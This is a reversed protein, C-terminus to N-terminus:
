YAGEVEEFNPAYFHRSYQQATTQLNCEHRCIAESNTGSECKYGVESMLIEMRSCGFRQGDLDSSPPPIAILLSRNLHRIVYSAYRRIFDTTTSILFMGNIEFLVSM